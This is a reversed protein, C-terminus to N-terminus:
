GFLRTQGISPPEVRGAPKKAHLEPRDSCFKAVRYALLPLVPRQQAPLCIFAGKVSMTLGAIPRRVLDAALPVGDRVLGFGVGEQILFQMDAPHSVFETPSFKVGAKELRREIQDYLLPHLARDFMVKLKSQVVGRPITDLQAAPDHIAEVELGIRTLTDAITRIDASTDLHDRLWSLTFKM